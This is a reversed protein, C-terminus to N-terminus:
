PVKGAPAKFGLLCPERRFSMNQDVPTHSPDTWWSMSPPAKISSRATISAGSLAATTAATVVPRYGVPVTHVYGRPLTVPRRAVATGNPGSVAVRRPGSVVTRHPGSAVGYVRAEALTATLLLGAGILLALTFSFKTKM